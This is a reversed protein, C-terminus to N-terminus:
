AFKMNGGISQAQTISASSDRLASALSETQQIGQNMSSADQGYVTSAAQDRESQAQYKAQEMQGISNATSGMLNTVTNLIQYQQMHSNLTEYYLKSKSGVKGGPGAATESALNSKTQATTVSEKIVQKSATGTADSSTQAKTANDTAGKPVAPEGIKGMGPKLLTTTEQTAKATALTQEKVTPAVGPKNAALVATDAAQNAKDITATTPNATAEKAATAADASAKTAAINNTATEAQKGAIKTQTAVESNVGPQVAANQAKMASAHAKTINESTPDSSATTAAQSAEKSAIEAATTNVTSEQEVASTATNSASATGTASVGAGAIGIALATIGAAMLANGAQATQAAAAQTATAQSATSLIMAQQQVSLTQNQSNMLCAIMAAMETFSLQDSTSDATADTTTQTTSTTTESESQHTPPPLTVPTGLIASETQPATSTPKDVTLPNTTKGPVAATTTTGDATSVAATTSSNGTPVSTSTPYGSATSTVALYGSSPPTPYNNSAPNNSSIPDTM